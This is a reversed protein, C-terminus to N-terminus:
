ECRVEQVRNTNAKIGKMSFHCRMGDGQEILVQSPPALMNILLVGNGAIFGADLGQETHASGGSVVKGYRDMVRLIYRKIHEAEFEKYVVANETPVVNYSTTKLELNDPVNDMDVSVTNIAYDSLNVVTYGKDNTPASGNISVGAVNPLRIVGVTNSNERSMLLGSNATGVISGSIRGSINTNNRGQTVMAGTQMKDFTYAVDGNISREGKEALSTNLSYSLRETPSASVGTRYSGKGNRNYNFGNSNYYRTGRLSFPITLNVGVNYDPKGFYPQKSYGGQLFVSIGDILITSFNLDVGSANGKQYWYSEKWGSLGINSNGLRQTFRMEYRSKKNYNRFRDNSYYDSFEVYGRSQYRYALLQLDSSNSFSKAYKASISRGNKQSRDDYKAKAVNAGVSFAGFEGMSQTINLGGAQYKNHLISAVNLTTSDFGYGLSGMWFGGSEGYRFPESIKVNSSKRGIAINYELEGPRLLTPLTTVPYITTTKRGSDDEVTVVLDGNGVPRVDDLQYPGPPVIKSYVPYGGQTITIRSASTAVGRIQPAYGRLEWPTMNSNSRLSAGYFGFDNFLQSRTWSKGLLLDGKVQSIATSLTADRMAFEDRGESDRMANMNSSLVWRGMNLILDTYAYAATSQGSNHSMNADYRLRVAPVGYDWRSPDTKSLILVQPIRFVLAQAGYQFNVKTYKEKSLVYCKRDEDLTESYGEIRVPINANKLWEQSLCLENAKDDEATITLLAKGLNEENVIIDVYYQGAPYLSDSKLVSPVARVGQLFDLNLEPGDASMVFPSFLALSLASLKFGTLYFRM